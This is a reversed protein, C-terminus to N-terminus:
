SDRIEIHLSMDLADCVNRITRITLNANGSLIQSVRPRSLGLLLALDQQSMGKKKLADMIAQSVGRSSSSGLMKSYLEATVIM